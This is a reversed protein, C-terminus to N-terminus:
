SRAGIKGDLDATAQVAQNDWPSVGQSTWDRVFSSCNSPPPIFDLGGRTLRGELRSRDCLVCKGFQDIMTLDLCAGLLGARLTM